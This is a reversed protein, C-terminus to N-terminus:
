IAGTAWQDKQGNEGIAWTRCVMPYGAWNRGEVWQDMPGNLGSGMPGTARPGEVWKTGHGM